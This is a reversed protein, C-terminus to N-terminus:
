RSEATLRRLFRDDPIRAIKPKQGNTAPERPPGASCPTITPQRNKYTVPACERQPLVGEASRSSQKRRNGVAQATPKIRGGSRPQYPAGLSACIRFQVSPTASRSIAHRPVSAFAASLLARAVRAAPPKSRPSNSSQAAAAGACPPPVGGRLAMYRATQNPFYPM